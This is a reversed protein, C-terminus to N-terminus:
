NDNKKERNHTEFFWGAILDDADDTDFHEQMILSDFGNKDITEQCEPCEEGIQTNEINEGCHNCLVNKEIIQNPQSEYNFKIKM